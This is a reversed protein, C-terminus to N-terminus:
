ERNIFLLFTMKKGQYNTNSFHLEASWETSAPIDVDMADEHSTNEAGTNQQKDSSTNAEILQNAISHGYLLRTAQQPSM